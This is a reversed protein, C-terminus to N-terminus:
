LFSGDRRQEWEGPFPNQISQLYVYYVNSGLLFLYIAFHCVFDKTHLVCWDKLSLNFGVEIFIWFLGKCNPQAQVAPTLQWSQM